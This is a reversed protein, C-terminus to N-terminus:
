IVPTITLVGSRIELKYKNSTIDLDTLVIQDTADVSSVFETSLKGNLYQSNLGTVLRGQANPGLIFPAHNVTPAFTYIGVINENEDVAAIKNVLAASLDSYEITGPSTIYNLVSLKEAESAFLRTDTTQVANNILGQTVTDLDTIAHTHAPLNLATLLSLTNHPDANVTTTHTIVSLKEAESAFLRTDTTLVANNYFDTLVTDLNTLGIIHTSTHEPLNLATLLGIVGHPDNAVLNAHTIVALKEAETAFLRIDNTGVAIPMLPDVPDLSLKTNGINTASSLATDWSSGFDVYTIGDNTYQWKNLDENWKISVKTEQGRNISILADSSLAGTEERNLIFESSNTGDMDAKNNIINNLTNVTDTLVTNFNALTVKEVTEFYIGFFPRVDYIMDQTIVTDNSKYYILALPLSTDTIVPVPPSNTSSEGDIITLGNNQNLAVLVWKAGTSPANIEITNAGIYEVVEKGNKTYSGPLVKVTKNPLTQSQVEFMKYFQSNRRYSDGYPPRNM